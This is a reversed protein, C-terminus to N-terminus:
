TKTLAVITQDDPLASKAGIQLLEATLFPFRAEPDEPPPVLRFRDLAKKFASASDLVGDTFAFLMQAPKDIKLKLSKIPAGPTLGIPPNSPMVLRVARREKPDYTCWDYSGCRVLEVDQGRCVALLLTTYQKKGLTSCIDENLTTAIEVADPSKGDREYRDLSGAIMATILAASPGKGVVDGFAVVLVAEQGPATHKFVRIWDGSMPGYPKHLLDYTWADIGGHREEPMFLQQIAEGLGIQDQLLNKQSYSEIAWAYIRGLGACAVPIAFSLVPLFLRGFALAAIGLVVVGLSAAILVLGVRRHKRSILSIAIVALGLMMLVFPSLPRVVLSDTLVNNILGATVLSSLVLGQPSNVFRSGTYAANAFVVITKGELRHQRKEDLEKLAVYGGTGYFWRLPLAAQTVIETIKPLFAFVLGDRTRGNWRGVVGPWDGREKGAYMGIHPLVGFAADYGVFTSNDEGLNLHGIAAVDRLFAPKPGIVATATQALSPGNWPVLKEAYVEPGVSLTNAKDNTVVVPLFFEVGPPAVPTEGPDMTYPELVFVQKVGIGALQRAIGMWDEFSPERQLAQRSADDYLIVLLREDVRPGYGANTLARMGPFLFMQTDIYSTPLATFLVFAILAALVSQARGDAFLRALRAYHEM